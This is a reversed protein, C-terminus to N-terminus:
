SKIAALRTRFEELDRCVVANIQQLTKKSANAAAGGAFILVADTINKRLIKLDRSLEQANGSHMVSIAIARAGLRSSASAIESAPLNVGLYMVNWGAAAAHIAATLAGLEHWEGAPTAVIITDTSNGETRARLMELFGAAKGNGM